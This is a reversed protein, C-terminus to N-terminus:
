LLYRMKIPLRLAGGSYTFQASKFSPPGMGIPPNQSMGFGERPLFLAVDMRNNGNEDHILAIAYTGPAVGEFRAELTARAPLSQKLSKPDKGCDPYAKPNATLCILVNGKTNRVGSIQVEVADKAALDPNAASLPASIALALIPAAFGTGFVSISGM